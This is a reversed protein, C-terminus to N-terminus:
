VFSNFLENIFLKIQPNNTNLFEIKDPNSKMEKAINKCLEMKIDQCRLDCEAKNSNRETTKLTLFELLSKNRYVFDSRQNILTKTIEKYKKKTRLFKNGQCLYAVPPCFIM